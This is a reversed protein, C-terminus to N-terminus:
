VPAPTRAASPTPPPEGFAKRAARIAAYGLVANGALGIVAGFGVPLERGLVLIGQKTGYKTVFNKGLVRNIAHIRSVPVHTVVHRAWYPGTRGAAKSIITSGADGLLIGILILRRTAMEQVEIGHVEALALVFLATVELFTGIEALNIPLAVATGVGPAAASAGAAGGLATVTALYQKELRSVLQEPSLPQDAKRLKEVHARVAPEQVNLAKELLAPLVAAIESRHPLRM